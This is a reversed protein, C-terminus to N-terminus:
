QYIDIFICIYICVYLNTNKHTFIGFCQFVHMRLYISMFIHLYVYVTTQSYPHINCVIVNRQTPIIHM